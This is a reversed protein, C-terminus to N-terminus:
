WCAWHRSEEWQAGGQAGGPACLGAWPQGPMDEPTDPKRSAWGQAYTLMQQQSHGHILAQPLVHCMSVHFCAGYACSGTLSTDALCHVLEKRPATQTPM